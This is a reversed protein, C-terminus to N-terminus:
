VGIQFLRYAQRFRQHSGCAMALVKGCHERVAAFDKASWSASAAAYIEDIAERAPDPRTSETEQRAAKNAKGSANQPAPEAAALNGAVALALVALALVAILL